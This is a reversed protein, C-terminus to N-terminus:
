DLSTDITLTYAGTTFDPGTISAWNNTPNTDSGDQLTYVAASMAGCRDSVGESVSFSNTPSDITIVVSNGDTVATSTVVSDGSDKFVVTAATSASCPDTVEISFTVRENAANLNFTSSGAPGNSAITISNTFYVSTSSVDTLKASSVIINGSGAPAESVFSPLNTWTYTSTFTYGCVPSQVYALPSIDIPLPTEFVVYSLDFGGGSTPASPITWSTVECTVTFTLATYTKDSGYTPNFVVILNHTGVV